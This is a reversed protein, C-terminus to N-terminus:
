DGSLYAGLWNVVTDDVQTQGIDKYLYGTVSVQVVQRDTRGRGRDCCHSQDRVVCKEATARTKHRHGCCGRIPGYTSYTRSPAMETSRRANQNLRILIDTSVVKSM